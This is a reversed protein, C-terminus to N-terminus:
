MNQQRRYQEPTLGAHRQFMTIFASSSSYGMDFATEKISQGQELAEIAALFRLRQRWEGFNMGLEEIFHRALTRESVFVKQAWDALARNDGPDAHLQDLILKVAASRGHPLYDAERPALYLQDLLVRALNQDPQSVPTAVDREAFDNLIAKLVNNMAVACPRDPLPACEELGIYVSRYIVSERNYCSHSANPPIWVAYNPPSIFTWGEIDLQMVGRATFNLQGWQHRHAVASTNAGFEDYRFYVPGPLEVLAPIEIYNKNM